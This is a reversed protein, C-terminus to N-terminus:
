KATGSKGARATYQLNPIEMFAQDDIVLIVPLSVTTGPKPVDANVLGHTAWLDRWTGNKLSANFTWLGTRKHYSPKNFTCSGNRGRRKSDLTFSVTVGGVDLVVLKGAFIYDPPLDISGKIACKDANTKAFNLTGQLKGITLQCAVAVTFSANTSVVGDDVTVSAVYPGCNTYVHTPTSSTSRNSVDGDGFDWTYYLTSSAWDGVDLAFVNTDGAVVVALNNFQMVANTIGMGSTTPMIEEVLNATYTGGGPPVTITRPNQTNGDNWGTFTWGSNPTVAIQKHAGVSYSGGGSVTGGNSPSAQVTVLVTNGSVTITAPQSDTLLGDSVSFSVNYTGTQSLSPTWSFAGTSTNLSAGGPLSTASYTLTSSDPDSASVTFALPQNAVVSKPGILALVPPQGGDLYLQQIEAPILTRSYVRLDDILGDYFDGVAYNGKEAGIRTAGSPNMVFDGGWDPNGSYDPAENVGNVYAKITSKDYVIVVHYWNNNQIEGLAFYTQKWGTTTQGELMLANSHAWFRFGSSAYTSRVCFFVGDAATNRPNLWVSVSFNNTLNLKNSDLSVYDDVGDFALANGIRGPTWGSTHNFNFNLLTGPDSGASDSAATGSTEDFKWWNILGDTSSGLVSILTTTSASLGRADTATFTVSYTGLQSATPTWSFTGNTPNLSAGTPLSSASYTIPDNDPDTAPVTFQLPQNKLVSQNGLPALVPPLNLPPLAAIVNSLLASADSSSSRFLVPMETLSNVTVSNGFIDTAALTSNTAVTVTSGEVVWALVMSTNDARRWAYLFVNTALSRMDVYTAQNLWYATMLFASTRPHPGRPFPHAVAAQDFGFIEQNDNPYNAFLTGVQLNIGVVGQARYMTCLKIARCFGRYWSLGSQYISPDAPNPPPCGLASTGYLGMEGVFSPKSLLNTGMTDLLRHTLAGCPPIETPYDQDPAHRNSDYDHWSWLDLVGDIGHNHLWQNDSTTWLTSNYSPGVLKISPAIRDRVAKAGQALALFTPDIAADNTGLLLSIANPENFIEWAYINTGYRTMAAAVFNTYATVLNQVYQSSNTDLWSPVGSAAVYVLKRGSAKVAAVGADSASWDWVNSKTQVDQWEGGDRDWTAGIASKLADSYDWAGTNHVAMMDLNGFDAPLVVFQTRDGPTEVFYHGVPLHLTTVAGSYVLSGDMGMVRIPTNNSTQIGISDGVHYLGAGPYPTLTILSVAPNFSQTFGSFATNTQASAVSIAL